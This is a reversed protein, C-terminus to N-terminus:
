ATGTRLLTIIDGARASKVDSAWKTHSLDLAASGFDGREMFGLFDHFTLVKEIGMNFTLEIMVEQRIRDLKFVWPLHGALDRRAAELDNALLQLAEARTIGVDDLNRGIGITLKGVTDRYPHLRLGEHRTVRQELTEAARPVPPVKVPPPTSPRPGTIHPPPEAAAAPTAFAARLGEAILSGISM